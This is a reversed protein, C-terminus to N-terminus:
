NFPLSITFCAGKYEVNKYIFEKNIAEINGSMREVIINYTMHLGLGTGQSQHKTTFYPEFIKPIVDLPIGGGNDQLTIVVEDENKNINIIFLKNKVEHEIFADKSNNYINIICQTLESEFSNIKILSDINTIIQINNQNASSKIINLFSNIQDKLYFESKSKDGKLFNKFDDITKSLYQTNTNINDCTEDIFKTTVMGMEQRLKLGTALVSIVSLPQRWQHAINAIMEGMSAMKESKFLQKQIENNKYVEDDVKIELNKNLNNLEEWSSKLKDKMKNFELALYHLEDNTNIQIDDEFNKNKAISIIGLKLRTINNIIFKNVFFSFIVQLIFLILIVKVILSKIIYEKSEQLRNKNFNIYIISIKEDEYFINSIKNYNNKDNKIVSALISSDIDKVIISDIIDSKAETKIIEDVLKIQLNWIVSPLILELRENIRNVENDLEKQIKTNYENYTIVSSVSLVTIVTIFLILNLKSSISKLNLM